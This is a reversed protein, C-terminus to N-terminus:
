DFARSRTLMKWSTKNEFWPARPHCRIFLFNAGLEKSAHRAKTDSKPSASLLQALGL